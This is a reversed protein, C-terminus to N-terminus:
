QLDKPYIRWNFWTIRFWGKSQTEQKINLRRVHVQPLVCSREAEKVVCNHTRVRGPIHMNIVNYLENRTFVLSFSVTSFCACFLGTFRHASICLCVPSISHCTTHRLPPHVNAHTNAFSPSVPTVVSSASETLADVWRRVPLDPQWKARNLQYTSSLSNRGWLFSVWIRGTEGATLWCHHRPHSVAVFGCLIGLTWSTQTKGGVGQNLRQEMLVLLSLFFSIGWFTVSNMKVDSMVSLAEYYIIGIIHSFVLM